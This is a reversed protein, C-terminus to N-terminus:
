LMLSSMPFSVLLEAEPRLPSENSTRRDLERERKRLNESSADLGASGRGKRGGAVFLHRLGRELVGYVGRRDGLSSAGRGVPKLRSRRTPQSEERGMEAAAAGEVEVGSPRSM